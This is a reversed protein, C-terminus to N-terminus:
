TATDPVVVAVDATIERQIREARSQELREKKTLVARLEVLNLTSTLFEHDGDLVATAAEGTGPEDTVTAVFVNTDLFLRM